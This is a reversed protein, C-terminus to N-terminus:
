IMAIFFSSKKIGAARSGVCSGNKGFSELFFEITYMKLVLCFRSFKLVFPVNPDHM